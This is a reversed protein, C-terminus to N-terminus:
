TRRSMEAKIAECRMKSDLMKRKYLKREAKFRVVLAPMFGESDRKYCAGNAAIAYNLSRERETSVGGLHLDVGRPGHHGDIIKEPSINLAVIMSPYESEVDCAVIWERRGVLPSKVYAGEFSSRPQIRENLRFQVGQNKLEVYITNDWVRIQSMVDTFNVLASYAITMITKLLNRKQEILGLIDVDRQNYDIAAQFDTLYLLHGPVGSEHRLKGMKADVEGIHDLKYSERPALVLKKYIKMMDLSACGWIDVSEVEGRQTQITKRTVRNWVSLRKVAHEGLVREIRNVLYVMDFEEGNWHTAVDPQLREWVGLFKLLMEEETACVFSIANPRDVTFQETGFVYRTKTLSDDITIINIPEAALSATPFGHACECEIDLSVISLKSVDWSEIIEKPSWAEAVYANAWKDYGYIYAGAVGKYQEVLEKAAKISDSKIASLPEGHISKADPKSGPKAKLYLTPCYGEIKRSYRRGSNDVGRLLITNGWAQFNTYFGSM